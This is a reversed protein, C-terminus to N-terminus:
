RSVFFAEPCAGLDQRGLHLVSGAAPLAIQTFFVIRDCNQSLIYNMTQDGVGVAGHLIGVLVRMLGEVAGDVTPTVVQTGDPRRLALQM